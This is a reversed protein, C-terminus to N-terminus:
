LSQTQGLSLHKLIDLWTPPVLFTFQVKYKRFVIRNQNIKTPKKEYTTQINNTTINTFELLENM